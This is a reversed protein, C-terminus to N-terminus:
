GGRSARGDNIGCLEEGEQHRAAPASAGILTGFFTSDVM